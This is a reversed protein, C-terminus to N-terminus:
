SNPHKECEPCVNQSAVRLEVQIASLIEERLTLNMESMLSDGAMECARREADHDGLRITVEQHRGCERIAGSKVLALRAAAELEDDLDNLCM